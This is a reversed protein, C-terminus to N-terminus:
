PKVGCRRSRTSDLRNKGVKLERFLIRDTKVLV